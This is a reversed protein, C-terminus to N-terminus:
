KKKMLPNGYRDIYYPGLGIRKHFGEDFYLTTLSNADVYLENFNYATSAHLHAIIDPYTVVFQKWYVMILSKLLMYQECVAKAYNNPVDITAAYTNSVIVLCINLKEPFEDFTISVHGPDVAAPLLSEVSPCYEILLRNCVSSAMTRAMSIFEHLQEQTPTAM